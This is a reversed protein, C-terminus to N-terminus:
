CQYHYGKFKTQKSNHEFYYVLKNFLEKKPLM